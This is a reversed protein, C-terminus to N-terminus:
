CPELHRLVFALEDTLADTAAPHELAVAFAPLRAWAITQGLHLCASADGVHGRAVSGVALVVGLLLPLMSPAYAADPADSYRQGAPQPALKSPFPGASREDPSRRGEPQPVLKSPLPGASREYPSRRGEPQPVLKSPFPGASREHALWPPVTADRVPQVHLLAQLLHACLRAHQQAHQAPDAAQRDALLLAAGSQERLQWFANDVALQQVMWHGDAAPQQELAHRILWYFVEAFAGSPNRPEGGALYDHLPLLPFDLKRLREDAMATSALRHQVTDLTALTQQAASEVMGHLRQLKGTPGLPGMQQAIRPGVDRVLWRAALQANVGLSRVGDKLSLEVATLPSQHASM